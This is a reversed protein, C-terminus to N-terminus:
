EKSGKRVAIDALTTNELFQSVSDSVQQWSRHASCGDADKCEKNSDLLCTRGTRHREFLGVVDALRIQNPAHQLRYGGGSGRTADIFGAGGLTWLIKSLYNPPIQAQKALERGLVVTGEPQEALVLLARLAYQVTVSLM